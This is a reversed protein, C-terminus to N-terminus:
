PGFLKDSLSDWLEVRRSEHPWVLKMFYNGRSSTIVAKELDGLSEDWLIKGSWSVLSIRGSGLVLTTHTRYPIYFFLALLAVGFIGFIFRETRDLSLPTDGVVVRFLIGEVVCVM